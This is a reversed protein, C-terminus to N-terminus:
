QGGKQGGIVAVKKRIYKCESKEKSWIRRGRKEKKCVRASVRMDM